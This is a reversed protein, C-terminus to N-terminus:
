YMGLFSLVGCGAFFNFGMTLRNWINFRSPVSFPDSSSSSFSRVFKVDIAEGAFQAAELMAAQSVGLRPNEVDVGCENRLGHLLRLCDCRGM